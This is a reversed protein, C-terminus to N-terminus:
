AQEPQIDQGAGRRDIEDIRERILQMVPIAMSNGLSKYRAGDNHGGKYLVLTYDDPFGQLREFERTTMRRIGCKDDVFCPCHSQIHQNELGLKSGFRANITCCVDPPWPEKTRM